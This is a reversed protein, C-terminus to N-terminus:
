RKQELNGKLEAMCKLLSDSTVGRGGESDLMMMVASLDFVLMEDSEFRTPTERGM